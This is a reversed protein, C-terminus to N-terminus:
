NGDVAGRSIWRLFEDKSQIHPYSRLKNKKIERPEFITKWLDHFYPPQPSQVIFVYVKILDFLM